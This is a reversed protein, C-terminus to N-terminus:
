NYRGFLIGYLAVSRIFISKHVICSNIFNSSRRYIEDFIPLCQGLLPIFLFCHTNFPLDRVKKCVIVGHFKLIVFVIATIPLWAVSIYTNKRM